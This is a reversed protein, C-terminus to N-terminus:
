TVRAIRSMGASYENPCWSKLRRGELEGHGYGFMQEVMANARVMKGDPAVVLIGQAASEFYVGAIADSERLQTAYQRVESRGRWRLLAMLAGTLAVFLLRNALSFPASVFIELGGGLHTRWPL